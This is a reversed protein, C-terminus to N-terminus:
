LENELRALQAVAVAPAMDALGTQECTAGLICDLDSYKCNLASALSPLLVRGIGAGIIDLQGECDTNSTTQKYAARIQELQQEAIYEAAVQLEDDGIEVGYDAGLM